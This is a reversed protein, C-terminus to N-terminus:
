FYISEGRHGNQAYVTQEPKFQLVAWVTCAFFPHRRLMENDRENM